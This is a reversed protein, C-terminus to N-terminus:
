KCGRSWLSERRFDGTFIVFTVALAKTTRLFCLCFNAGSRKKVKLDESTVSGVSRLRKTSKTASLRLDSLGNGHADLMGAQRRRFSLDQDSSSFSDGPPLRALSRKALHAM